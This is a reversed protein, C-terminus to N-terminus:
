PIPAMNETSRLVVVVRPGSILQHATTATVMPIKEMTVVSIRGIPRSVDMPELKWMESPVAPTSIVMGPMTAATAAGSTVTAVPRTSRRRMSHMSIAQERQGIQDGGDRRGVPHQQEGARHNAQDDATEPRDPGPQGPPKHPRMRDAPGGSHDERGDREAGHEPHRRAGQDPLEGPPAGRKEHEARQGNGYQEREQHQQRWQGREVHRSHAHQTTQQPAAPHPETHERREQEHERM